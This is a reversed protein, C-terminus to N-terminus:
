LVYVLLIFFFFFFFQGKGVYKCVYMCMGYMGYPVGTYFRFDFIVVGDNEHEFFTPPILLSFCGVTAVIVCTVSFISHNYFFILFFLYFPFPIEGHLNRTLERKIIM